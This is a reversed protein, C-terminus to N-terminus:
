AVVPTTAQGTRAAAALKAKAEKVAAKEKLVQTRSKFDPGNYSRPKWGPPPPARPSGISIFKSAGSLEDRRALYRNLEAVFRKAEIRLM